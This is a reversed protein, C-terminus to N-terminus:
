GGIAKTPRNIRPHQGLTFISHCMSSSCLRGFIGTSRCIMSCPPIRHASRRIDTSSHAVFGKFRTPNKAIQEALHDNARRAMRIAQSVDPIAQIGDGVLSLICVDLGGRDMEAIRASGIDELQRQLEPGGLAGYSAALTEPIVFHEELAIKGPAPVSDPRAEDLRSLRHAPKASSFLSLVGASASIGAARQLWRRRTIVSDDNPSNM